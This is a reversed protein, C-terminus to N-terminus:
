TASAGPTVVETIPEVTISGLSNTATVDIVETTPGTPAPGSIIGTGGGPICTPLNITVVTQAISTTPLLGLALAGKLSKMKRLYATLILSISRLGDRRSFEFSHSLHSVIECDYQKYNTSILIFVPQPICLIADLWSHSAGIGMGRSEISFSSM